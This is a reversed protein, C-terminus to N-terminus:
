GALVRSAPQILRNTSFQGTTVKAGVAKVLGTLLILRGKVGCVALVVGALPSIQDLHLM